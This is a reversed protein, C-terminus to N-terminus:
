RALTDSYWRRREDCAPCSGAPCLLALPHSRCFELADQYIDAIPICCSTLGNIQLPRILGMESLYNGLAPFAKSCGPLERLPQEGEPTLGSKKVGLYGWPSVDVWPVPAMIEFHHGLTFSSFDTGLMLVKAQAQKVLWELVSGAGLPSAPANALSISATVKGWMAFSHTPSSTRVVGPQRWFWDSVAGVKSGTRDRDFREPGPENKQFCYTFSPIILSGARSIAQQIRAILDGIGLEPFAARVKRFACHLLIQDGKQVALRQLYENFDM